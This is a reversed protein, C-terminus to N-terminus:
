QLQKKLAGIIYGQPNDSQRIKGKLAALFGIIDLQEHALKFLDINNKIGDTTFDFNHKLYDTVEKPLDWSLSIQKQLNHKELSSDRNKPNYKPFFLISTIKRGTKQPVYDFSYPSKEDLEKKAVDVIRRVFDATLKYKKEVQFISKLKEVKYEIPTKQGSMLEYFRMAYVSEFEMATILEFKRYGKAFNMTAEVIKPHAVWSVISSRKKLEFEQIVGFGQISEDDEYVIIKKLLSEFAKKIQHYNKDENDKLLYSLPITYRKNGWLSTDIKVGKGIPQGEILAQEIEIQRYLIRKEYASFDYKAVTFIYSQILDKNDNKAM